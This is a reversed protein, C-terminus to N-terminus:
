KTKLKKLFISKCGGLMLTCLCMLLLFLIYFIKKNKVGAQNIYIGTKITGDVKELDLYNFNLNEFMNRALPLVSGEGVAQTPIEPDYHWEIECEPMHRICHIISQAGATGQGLIAVKKM